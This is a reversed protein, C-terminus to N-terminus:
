VCTCACACVFVSDNCYHVGNFVSVPQCVKLIRHSLDDLKRRYEAIRAVSTVQAQQLEKIDDSMMQSLSSSLSSPLPLPFLSSYPPLPFSPTLSPSLSPSISISLSFPLSLSWSVIILFSFHLFLLFPLLFSSSLSPLPLSASFSWVIYYQWENCWVSGFCTGYCRFLCNVLRWSTCTYVLGILTCTCAYTNM